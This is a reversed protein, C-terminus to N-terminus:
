TAQPLLSPVPAQGHFVLVADRMFRWASRGQKRRTGLVTWIRENWQRGM